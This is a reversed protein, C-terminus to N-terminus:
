LPDNTIILAILEQRDFAEKIKWFLADFAERSRMIIDPMRELGVLICGETNEAVNGAHIRVGTFLPVMLIHPMPRKFRTSYDITIRYEGASICTKGPIKVGLPRAVDELTFCQTTGDVLLM